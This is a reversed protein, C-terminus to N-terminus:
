DLQVNLTIMIYQFARVRRIRSVFKSWSFECYQRWREHCQSLAPAPIPSLAMRVHKLIRARECHDIVEM